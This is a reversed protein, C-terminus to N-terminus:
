YTLSMLLTWATTVCGTCCNWRLAVPSIRLPAREFHTPSGKKWNGGTASSTTWTVVSHRQASPCFLSLLDYIYRLVVYICIKRIYSSMELM